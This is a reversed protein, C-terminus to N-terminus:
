GKFYDNVLRSVIKGDYFDFTEKVKKMSQGMFQNLPLSKDVTKIVDIIEEDTPHKPLLHVEIILAELKEKDALDERGAKMYLEYAEMRKKFAKQIVALANNEGKEKKEETVVDAKLTRYVSLATKDGSKMAQKLLNDIKELM